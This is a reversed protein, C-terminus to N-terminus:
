MAILLEPSAKQMELHKLHEPIEPMQLESMGKIERRIGLAILESENMSDLGMQDVTQPNVPERANGEFFFMPMLNGAVRAREQSTHLYSFTEGLADVAQDLLVTTDQKFQDESTNAYYVVANDLASGISVLADSVANPTAMWEKIPRVSQAGAEFVRDLHQLAEEPKVGESLEPVNTIQVNLKVTSNYPGESLIPSLSPIQEVAQKAPKESVKAGGGENAEAKSDYFGFRNAQIQAVRAKYQTVTEGEEIAIMDPESLSKDNQHSQEFAKGHVEQNAQDAIVGGEKAAEPTRLVSKEAGQEIVRLNKQAQDSM